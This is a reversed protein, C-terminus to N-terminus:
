MTYPSLIPNGPNRIEVKESSSESMAGRGWHQAKVKRGAGKLAERQDWTKHNSKFSWCRHEQIMEPLDQSEGWLTGWHKLPWPFTESFLGAIYFDGRDVLAWRLLWLQIEFLYGKQEEFSHFSSETIIYLCFWFCNGEQWDAPWRYPENDQGSFQNSLLVGGGEAFLHSNITFRCFALAIPM